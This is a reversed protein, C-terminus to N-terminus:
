SGHPRLCNALLLDYELECAALRDDYARGDDGLQEWVDARYRYGDRLSRRVDREHCSLDSFGKFGQRIIIEDWETKLFDIYLTYYDISLSHESHNSLVGALYRYYRAEDPELDIAMHLDSLVDGLTQRPYPIGLLNESWSAGVNSIIAREEYFIARKPDLEIALNIEEEAQKWDYTDDLPFGRGRIKAKHYHAMAPQEGLTIASDFDTLANEKDETTSGVWESYIVGRSYYYEGHSPRLEIARSLGELGKEARRGASLPSWCKEIEDIAAAGIMYHAEALDPQLKIAEEFQQIADDWREEKLM